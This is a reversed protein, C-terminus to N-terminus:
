AFFPVPDGTEADKKLRGVVRGWTYIVSALAGQPLDAPWGEDTVTVVQGGDAAPVIEWTVITNLSAAM